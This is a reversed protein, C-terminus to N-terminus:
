LTAAFSLLDGALLEPEELAAFHGGRPMVTWSRLDGCLRETWARPPRIIEGPFDAVAVPADILDGPGPKWRDRAEAAYLRLASAATGTAWYLTLLDCLQRRSFRSEVDGGCDSWERYRPLLWAALALPSDGLGLGLTDPARGHVLMHFGRASRWRQAAEAYAVEEPGPPPDTLNGPVAMVGPANCHFGAVRDPHDFAIRSGIFAGWDGGGVVYRRHGLAAMLAALRDAVGKGSLPPTPIESFGYGPLTPIVVEHGAAVLLPALEEFELPGGPWGHILLIPLLQEDGALTEPRRRLLHIGEWRLSDPGGLRESLGAPDYEDAWWSCLERLYAGDVGWEWGDLSGDTWEAPWRAALLRARMDAVVAADLEPSWPAPDGSM